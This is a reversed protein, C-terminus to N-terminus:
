STLMQSESCNENSSSVIYPDFVETIEATEPTVEKESKPEQFQSDISADAMHSGISLAKCEPSTIELEVKETSNPPESM